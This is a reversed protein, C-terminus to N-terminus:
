CARAELVKRVARAAADFDPWKGCSIIQSDDHKLNAEFGHDYEFYCITYCGSSRVLVESYYPFV